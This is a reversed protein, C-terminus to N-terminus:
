YIKQERWKQLVQAEDMISYANSKLKNIEENVKKMNENHIDIHSAIESNYRKIEVDILEILKNVYSQTNENNVDKDYVDYIRTSTKEISECYVKWVEEKMEVIPKGFLLGGLFGGAIAGLPGLFMGVAAGIVAATTEQSIDDSIGSITGQLGRNTTLYLLSMSGSLKNANFYANFPLNKYLERFINETEKIVNSGLKNLERKRANEIRKVAGNISEEAKQQTDSKLISKSSVGIIWNYFSDSALKLESNITEVIYDIYRSRGLYYGELVRGEIENKFLEPDVPISALLKNESELHSSILNEGIKIVKSSLAVAEKVAMDVVLEVKKIVAEKFIDEKLVVLNDCYKLAEPKVQGRPLCCIPYLMVENLNFYRKLDLEVRQLTLDVSDEGDCDLDDDSFVLDMKNLVFFTKGAEVRVMQLIEMEKNKLANRADILFICVHADAIVKRAIEARDSSANFGPTDIIVANEPLDEIPLTVKVKDVWDLSSEGVKTHKAIFETPSYNKFDEKNKKSGFIDTAKRFISWGISDQKNASISNVINNFWSGKDSNLASRIIGKSDLVEVTTKRGRRIETPVGTAEEQTTFFLDTNFLTNLFTTKGTSTEGVVAIRLENENLRLKIKSLYENIQGKTDSNVDDFQSISIFKNSLDNLHRLADDVSSISSVSNQLDKGVLIYLDQIWLMDERPIESISNGMEVFSGLAWAEYFRMVNEGYQLIPHMYNGFSHKLNKKCNNINDLAESILGNKINTECSAVYYLMLDFAGGSLIYRNNGEKIKENLHMLLLLIKDSKIKGSRLASFIRYVLSECYSIENNSFILEDFDDLTYGTPRKFEEPKFNVKLIEDYEEKLLLRFLKTNEEKDIQTLKRTGKQPEVQYEKLAEIIADVLESKDEEANEEIIKVLELCAPKLTDETSKNSYEVILVAFVEPVNIGYNNSKLWNVAEYIYEIYEKYRYESKAILAKVLFGEFESCEDLSPLYRIAAPTWQYKLLETMAFRISIACYKNFKKALVIAAQKSKGMMDLTRAYIFDIVGTIADLERAKALIDITDNFKSEYINKIAEELLPTICKMPTEFRMCVVSAIGDFIVGYERSDHFNIHYDYNADDQNNEDAFIIEFVKEEDYKLVKRLNMNNCYFYSDGRTTIYGMRENTAFFVAETPEELGNQVCVVEGRSEYLLEEGNIPNSSVLKRLNLNDIKSIIENM